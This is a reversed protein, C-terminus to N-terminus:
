NIKSKSCRQIREEAYNQIEYFPNRFDTLEFKFWVTYNTFM